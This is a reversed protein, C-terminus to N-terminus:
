GRSTSAPDQGGNGDRDPGLREATETVSRALVAVTGGDLPHAAPLEPHVQEITGRQEVIQRASYLRTIGDFRDSDFWERTARVEDDFSRESKEGDRIMTKM